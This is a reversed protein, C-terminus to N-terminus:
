KPTPEPIARKSKYIMLIDKAVEGPLKEETYILHHAAARYHHHRQELILLMENPADSSGTLSPRLFASTTDKQMRSALILTSSRLDPYPLLYFILGFKRLLEVNRSRYQEEQNYAVAGGGPAFIINSNQSRACIDVILEAEFKRFEEWGCKNVFDTINGHRQSFEIDADVFPFDLMLVLEKGVSTKGSGRPGILVISSM